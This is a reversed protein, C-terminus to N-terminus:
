TKSGKLLHKMYGYMKFEMVAAQTVVFRQIVFYKLFNDTLYGSLSKLNRSQRHINKYMKKLVNFGLFFFFVTTLNRCCLLKVELSSYVSLIQFEQLPYLCIIGSIFDVEFISRSWTKLPIIPVPKVQASTLIIEERFLLLFVFM